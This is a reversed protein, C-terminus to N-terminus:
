LNVPIEKIGYDNLKGFIEQSFDTVVGFFGQMKSLSAIQGLPDSQDSTKAEDKFTMSYKAMKIAKVHVDLMDEPVEIDEIEDLTKEGKKAISELYQTNGSTMALLSETGLSTIISGFDNQTHFSKPSNNALIYAMVTLYELADERKKEALAEGKLKKSIKKIKIDDINVEPLVIEQDSQNLISQVSENITEMTIPEGDGTTSGQVMTAIENSVQKTLNVREGAASQSATGDTTVVEQSVVRDGPAPKLPNYGSEVEVGDTYGDDDSDKDLPDTKYLAEEDNSLGDQDSDQFINKNTATDDASVFFTVSLILLGFFLFMTMRANRESIDSLFRHAM